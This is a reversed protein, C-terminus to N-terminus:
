QRAAPSIVQRRETDPTQCWSQSYLSHKLLRERGRGEERERKGESKEKM